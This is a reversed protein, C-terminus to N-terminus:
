SHRPSVERTRLGARELSRVRIRGFADAYSRLPAHFAWEQVRERLHIDQIGRNKLETVIQMWFKAGEAEAAWIGLVEKLSSIM